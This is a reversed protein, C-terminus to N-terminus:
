PSPRMIVAKSSQRHNEQSALPVAYDNRVIQRPAPTLSSTLSLAVRLSGRAAGMQGSHPPGFPQMAALVPLKADDHQHASTRKSAAVSARTGADCRRIAQMQRAQAIAFCGARQVMSMRDSTLSRGKASVIHPWAAALAAAASPRSSGRMTAPRLSRSRSPCHGDSASSEAM